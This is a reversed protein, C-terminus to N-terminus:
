QSFIEAFKEELMALEKETLRSFEKSSARKSFKGGGQRLFGILTETLKDSMDFREAIFSKM